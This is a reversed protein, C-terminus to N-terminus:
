KNAMPLQKCFATAKQMRIMKIPSVMLLIAITYQLPVPFVSAMASRTACPTRVFPLSASRMLAVSKPGSRPENHDIRNDRFVVGVIVRAGIAHAKSAKDRLLGMRCAMFLYSREKHM